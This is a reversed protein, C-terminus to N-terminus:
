TRLASSDISVSTATPSQAAMMRRQDPGLWQRKPYLLAFVLFWLLDFAINLASGEPGASGGSLWAPGRFHVNLLQGSALMGSNPGSYLFTLAWDWAFHVGVAFWLNGTRWLTFCAFIGFLFVDTLGLWNEGGNAIHALLFVFSLLLAAPWFGIGSALTYQPYGRLSFEEFLGVFLMALAWLIANLLIASGHLALGDITYFHGLWLALMLISLASLGWLVGFWFEKRLARRWPLGYHAWKEREIRAMILAPVAAFLFALGRSYVERAPDLTAMRAQQGPHILHRITRYVFVLVFTLAFYILLRWGARLGNPGIFM